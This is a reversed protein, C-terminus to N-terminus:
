KFRIQFNLAIYFKDAEQYIYGFDGKKKRKSGSIGNVYLIASIESDTMERHENLYIESKAFAIDKMVGRDPVDFKTNCFLYNSFIDDSMASM